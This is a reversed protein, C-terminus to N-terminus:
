IGEYIQEAKNVSGSLGLCRIAVDGSDMKKVTMLGTRVHDVYKRDVRLIGKKGSGKVFMVGAKAYGFTGLFELLGKDVTEKLKISESAKNGFYDVSYVLYRKKERLTPTLVKIRTKKQMNDVFFLGKKKERVPNESIISYIFIESLSNLLLFGM